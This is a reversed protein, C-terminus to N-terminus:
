GEFILTLIILIIVLTYAGDPSSLEGDYPGGIMEKDHNM